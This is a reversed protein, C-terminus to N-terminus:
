GAMDFVNNFSEDTIETATELLKKYIGIEEKPVRQFILTVGDSNFYIYDKDITFDTDDIDTSLDDAKITKYGMDPLLITVNRNAGIEVYCDKLMSGIIAEALESGFYGWSDDDSMASADVSLSYYKYVRSQGLVRFVLLAVIAVVAVAVLVIVSVTWTKKKKPPAQTRAEYQFDDSTDQVMPSTEVSKLEPSFGLSAGCELCFEASEPNEANCNGCTM